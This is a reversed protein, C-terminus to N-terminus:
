KILLALIQLRLSIMVPLGHASSTTILAPNAKSISTITRATTTQYKEVINRVYRTSAGYTQGNRYFPINEFDRLAQFDATAQARNSRQRFGGCKNLNAVTNANDSMALGGMWGNGVAKTTIIDNESESTITALTDM